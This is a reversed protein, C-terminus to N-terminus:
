TKKNLWATMNKPMNRKGCPRSVRESSTAFGTKDCSTHPVSAHLSANHGHRYVPPPSYINQTILCPSPQLQFRRYTFRRTYSFFMMADDHEDNCRTPVTADDDCPSSGSQTRQTRQPKEEVKSGEGELFDPSSVRKRDTDSQKGDAKPTRPQRRGIPTWDSFEFAARDFEFTQKGSPDVNDYDDAVGNLNAKRLSDRICMESGM